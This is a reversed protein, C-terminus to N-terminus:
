KNELKAIIKREMEVLPIYVLYQVVFAVFLVVGITVIMTLGVANLYLFHKEYLKMMMYSSISIVIPWHVAYLSLSIKGLEQFIKFEVMTRIKAVKEIGIIILGWGLSYFLYKPIFIYRWLKYIGNQVNHNPIAVFLVGLILSIIGFFDSKKGGGMGYNNYYSDCIVMGLLMIGLYCFETTLWKDIIFCLIFLVIYILNRAKLKDFTKELCLLIFSNWFIYKITWLPSNYRVSTLFVNVCGEYLPGSQGCLAGPEFNNFWRSYPDSWTIDMIQYSYVMKLKMVIWGLMSGIIAIPLLRVYRGGWKSLVFIRGSNKLCSYKLLFGSFLIFGIMASTANFFFHLPTELLMNEIASHQNYGGGFIAYPLFVAMAHGLFVILCCIGKLSNIYKIEGLPLKYNM